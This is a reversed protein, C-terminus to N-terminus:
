LAALKIAVANANIRLLIAQAESESYPHRVIADREMGSVDATVQTAQGQRDVALMDCQGNDCKVLPKQPSVSALEVDSQAEMAVGLIRAVAISPVKCLSVEYSEIPKLISATTNVIKPTRLAGAHTSLGTIEGSKIKQWADDASVMDTFLQGDGLIADIMKGTSSKLTTRWFKTWKGVIPMAHEFLMPAMDRRIMAQLTKLLDIHPMFRKQSDLVEASVIGSIRRDKSDIVQLVQSRLVSDM